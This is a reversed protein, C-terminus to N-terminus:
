SRESWRWTASPRSASARPAAPLYALPVEEVDIVKVTGETCGGGAGAREGGGQGRGARHRALNRGAFIRDIEGGVQAIAAGIANAVSANEPRIVKSASSCIRTPRGGGPLIVPM